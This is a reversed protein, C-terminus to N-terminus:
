SGYEELDLLRRAARVWAKANELEEKAAQINLEYQLIKASVAILERKLDEIKLDRDSLDMM